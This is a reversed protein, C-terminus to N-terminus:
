NVPGLTRMMTEMEDGPLQGTAFIETGELTINILTGGAHRLRRAVGEEPPGLEAFRPRLRHWFGQGAPFEVLLVSVMGDTYTAQLWEFETRGRGRITELGIRRFGAPLEKPLWARFGLGRLEDDSLPQREMGRGSRRRRRPEGGSADRPPDFTISAHSMEFSAEGTSAVVRFRLLFRNEADVWLQYTARGRHRPRLEWRGAYRGAVTDDGLRILNYNQVVLAAHLFRALWGRHGSGTLYGRARALFSFGGPERRGTMHPALVEVRREGARGHVRLVTTVAGDPHNVTITREATFALTAEARQIEELLSRDRAADAEGLLGWALPGGLAICGLIRLVARVARM